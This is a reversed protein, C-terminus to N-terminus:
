KELIGLLKPMAAKTVRLAEDAVDDEPIEDSYGAVAGQLAACFIQVRLQNRFERLSQEENSRM